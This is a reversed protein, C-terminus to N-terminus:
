KVRGSLFTLHTSKFAGEELPSALSALSPSNFFRGVSEGRGQPGGGEILPAKFSFFGQLLIEELSKM